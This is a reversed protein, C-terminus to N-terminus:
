FVQTRKFINYVINNYEKNEENNYVRLNKLIENNRKKDLKEILLYNTEMPESGKGGKNKNKNYNRKGLSNFKYKKSYEKFNYKDIKLKRNTDLNDIRFFNIAKLNRPTYGKKLISDYRIRKKTLNKKLLNEKYPNRYTDKIRESFFLNLNKRSSYNEKTNLYLATKSSSKSYNKLRKSSLNAGEFDTLKNKYLDSINIKRSSRSNIIKFFKGQENYADLFRSKIGGYKKKQKNQLMNAKEVEKISNIKLQHIQRIIQLRTEKKNKIEEEKNTSESHEDDKPLLNYQNKLSSFKPRIITKKSLFTRMFISQKKFTNFANFVDNNQNKSKLESIKKQNAKKMKKLYVDFFKHPSSTYKKSENYIFKFELEAKLNFYKVIIIPLNEKSYFKIARYVHMWLTVNINNEKNLHETLPLSMKNKIKSRYINEFYVFFLYSYQKGIINEIREKYITMDLSNIIEDESLINQEQIKKQNIKEEEDSEM